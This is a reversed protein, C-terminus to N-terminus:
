SALSVNPKIFVNEEIRFQQAHSILKPISNMLNKVISISVFNPIKNYDKETNIEGEVCAEFSLEGYAKINCLFNFKKSEMKRYEINWDVDLELVKCKPVKSPSKISISLINVEM